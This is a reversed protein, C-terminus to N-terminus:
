VKVPSSIANKFKGKVFSLPHIGNNYSSLSKKPLFSAYKVAELMKAVSTSALEAL